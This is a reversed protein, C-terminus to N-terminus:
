TVYKFLIYKCYNTSFTFLMSISFERGIVARTTAQTVQNKYDFMTVDYLVKNKEVSQIFRETKAKYWM